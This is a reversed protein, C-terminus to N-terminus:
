NPNPWLITVATGSTYSTQIDLSAQIAAAREHMIGLGLSKNSRNALDFGRGNDRISLEIYHADGILVIEVETSRAHKVVNNLAEQALRYLAIQIDPALKIGEDVRLTINFLKRSLAAAALQKLLDSLTSEVLAKPRLELLLTRMEALAGQTLRHLDQLTAMGEDRDELWLTPLVDALLSATFLTQSVADHLDNALRQREQLIALEQAGKYLRANEIAIAAQYAFAELREAHRPGFYGPTTSNLNILGIVNDDRRIPVGIYSRIWSSHPQEVWLSSKTTDQIIFPRKGKIIHQHNPLQSLLQSLPMESDLEQGIPLHDSESNLRVTRAIDGEILVVHAKEHPVVRGIESLIRELVEDLDLTSNLIAATSHLADILTQQEREVIERQAIERQEHLTGLPDGQAQKHATVNRYAGLLGLVQGEEDNIPIISQEVWILQGHVITRQEEITTAIQNARIVEQDLKRWRATQEPTWPLDDDRKGILDDPSDLGADTAFHHNGWVYVLERNKYFLALPMQDHLVRLPQWLEVPISNDNTLSRIM